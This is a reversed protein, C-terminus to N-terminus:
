TTVNKPLITVKIQKIRKKDLSEVVFHYNEFTIVDSKKPFNGNIELIFGALTEAEGKANEFIRDDELEIARYFDKLNTKGEFIFNNADLKSFVLDDDDFEDSIDGVIQEIIDELSIIGSTGGYEDVVIALHIKKEQFEKLLDDLKKNEPVFYPQRLLNHWVFDTEDLYPLLDKAYLVGVVTDLNEKYVPIRSYGNEIILKLVEDFRLNENLAFVDIRPKMIQRTDTNGFNVIGELIKQEEKTTDDDSTLELAHSLHDVSIQTTQGALRREVMRSFSRMPVSLPSLLFMFIRLPLAMKLAFSVHNRAAYVKPLIEGFILIITSVLLIDLLFQLWEVLGIFLVKTIQVSVVVIAINVFNNLILITALLKKPRETLYIVWNRKQPNAIEDINNRSLSFFAIESGSIVASALLLLLLTFLYAWHEPGFSGPNSLSLYPDPDM